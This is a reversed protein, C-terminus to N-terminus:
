AAGAVDADRPPEDSSLRGRRGSDERRGVDRAAAPLVARGDAAQVRRATDGRACATCSTSGKAGSPWWRAVVEPPDQLDADMVVVADGEARMSAPPSPWRTGSTGAGAVAGQLPARGGGARRLMTLSRDKSGDNVFIVEWSEGVGGGVRGSLSAAPSGARPDRARRQLDTYGPVAHSAAHSVSRLTGGAGRPLLAPDSARRGTTAAPATCTVTRSNRM